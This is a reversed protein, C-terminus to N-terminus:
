FGHVGRSPKIMTREHWGVTRRCHAHDFAFTAPEPILVTVLVEIEEGADGNNAKAVGIRLNCVRNGLLRAGQHM